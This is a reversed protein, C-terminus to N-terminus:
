ASISSQFISTIKYIFNGLINHECLFNLFTNEQIQMLFVQDGINEKWCLIVALFVWALITGELIGTLLGLIRNLSKIIPLQTILRFPTFIIRILNRAILIITTIIGSVLFGILNKHLISNVVVIAAIVGFSIIIIDILTEIEDILGKRSAAFVRWIYIGIVIILVVPMKFIISWIM